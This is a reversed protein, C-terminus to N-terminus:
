ELPSSTGETNWVEVLKPISGLGNGGPSLKTVFADYGGAWPRFPNVLPFDYSQTWGTVYASGSGDVDIGSGQDWGSGGLYTSYFLSNGAPSLKTVFADCNGGNYSYDYAYPCPFNSSGTLGTVYASGAGDVAIGRGEDYSNGGLYTSYALSNGGPSLKTV